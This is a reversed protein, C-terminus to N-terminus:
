IEKEKKAKLEVLPDYFELGEDESQEKGGDKLFL